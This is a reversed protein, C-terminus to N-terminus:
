YGPKSFNSSYLMVRTCGLHLKGGERGTRMKYNSTVWQFHWYPWRLHGFTQYLSFHDFSSKHGVAGFVFQCAFCAYALATLGVDVTRWCVTLQLKWKTLLVVAFSLLILDNTVSLCPWESMECTFFSSRQNEPLLSMLLRLMFALSQFCLSNSRKRSFWSLPMVLTYYFSDRGNGTNRIQRFLCRGKVILFHSPIFRASESGSTLEGRGEMDRGFNTM